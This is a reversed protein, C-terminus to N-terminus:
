SLRASRSDSPDASGTSARDARAYHLASFFCTWWACIVARNGFPFELAAYLVVSGCGILLYIPLPSQTLGRRSGWLPVLACLGLLTTGILGVESASQLWDSHADHYYQLLGDVPSTQQTNRSFFATPYAGMGWGFWLKERAMNWTDRYLIARSGFDGRSRMQAIQEQTIELRHEIVPRALTYAFAGGLGLAAIAAVLPLLTSKETLGGRRRRLFRWLWHVLGIALLLLILVTSSRSASLPISAALLLIAVLGSPVPSHWFDRSASRRAFHAVLGLSLATMLVTFAGWHNHYIFSSFFYVQPSDIFGFFLGKAGVLKQATGFIALLLANGALILLLARLARRQRVVLLLNFCSLYVADFFWLTQLTHLPRATSPLLLRARDEVFFNRTEDTVERFSPNFCSAIVMANFLALPWLWRLPRLRDSSQGRKLAAAVTIAVGLTGWISLLTRALLTNGGLWWAAFVVLVGVHALTALELRALPQEANTSRSRSRPRPQDHESM